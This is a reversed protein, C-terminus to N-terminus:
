PLGNSVRIKQRWIDSTTAAHLLNLDKIVDAMDVPLHSRAKLLAM